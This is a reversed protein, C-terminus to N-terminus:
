AAGGAAGQVRAARDVLVSVITGSHAKIDGAVGVMTSAVRITDDLATISATHGAIGVGAVLMDDLYRRIGLAARLTRHLLLVALPVVVAVVVILTVLWVLHVADM